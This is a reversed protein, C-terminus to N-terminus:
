ARRGGVSTRPGRVIVRPLFRADLESWPKAERNLLDAVLSLAQFEAPGAEGRLLFRGEELDLAVDRGVRSGRQIRAFLEADAERIRDLVRAVTSDAPALPLDTAPRTPDFPLPRGLRDMLVLRSGLASLAVPEAERVTVRITGPLRRSVRAEIVGPLARVRDALSGIPDFISSGEPVEMAAVVEAATIYRAGALEIRRVDFFSLARLGARIGLGGAGAVVIVVAVLLVRKV